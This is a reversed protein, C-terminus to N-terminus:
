IIECCRNLLTGPYIAFHERQFLLAVASACVQSINSDGALYLIFGAVIM